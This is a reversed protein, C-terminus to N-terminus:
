LLVGENFILSENSMEDPKKIEMLELITPAVSALIGDSKLKSRKIKPDESVIIFPVPNTTHETDPDGTKPNVMQEANGHDAVIVATSGTYLVKSLIRGLCEDVYEVAEATAQFNGTHGVMDANAFNIVYVDYLGKDMNQLVADTLERASMKPRFDYTKVDKPSPVMMRDEGPYPEERGGNFFYTVHPYKETEACHFQRLNKESWIQALTMDIKEAFFVKKALNSNEYIAFTACYINNLKKRDPIEPFKDEMFVRTLEKTRDSRFNFLIISDNDKVLEAHQTKTSVLRPEIFEDTQGAAYSSSFASTLSEYTNGEGKVYLNYARAIRGWRSDRDMAFFRGAVSVIRGVGIRRVENEVESALEIGSMPDSDRGDSILHIFVRDFNSKKMLDLLAYLHRVHSHTGTKSLLGILHINSRNDKAHKIAALLAENSYFRQDAIQNDILTIDQHIVRGAGLNLHGAESNGPSNSPLGVAGSSALLTTTPYEQSIKNFVKTRAAAVANGGWAPANGWGDLIILAMFKKSGKGEFQM